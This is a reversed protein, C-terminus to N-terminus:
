RSSKFLQLLCYGDMRKKKDVNKSCDNLTTLGPLIHGFKVYTHNTSCIDSIKIYARARQGGLVTEDTRKQKKAYKTGSKRSKWSRWSYTLSYILFFLTEQREWPSWWEMTAKTWISLISIGDLFPIQFCEKMANSARCAIRWLELPLVHM